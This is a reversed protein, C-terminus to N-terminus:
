EYRLAVVPDVGTARRAPIYSALLAVSTLLLSVAIYTLPDTPKIGYLLSSLFRTVALAGAVGAALIAASIWIVRRAHGLDIYRGLVMGGAAGALAAVSLTGGFSDYRGGLAQFM